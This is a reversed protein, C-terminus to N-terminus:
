SAAVDAAKKIVQGRVTLLRTLYRRLVLREVVRGLIGFPAEFPKCDDGGM